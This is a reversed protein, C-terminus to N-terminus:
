DQEVKIFGRLRVGEVKRTGSKVRRFGRHELAQTFGKRGLTRSAKDGTYFENYSDWLDAVEATAKEEVICSDEIWETLPDFEERFEKATEKVSAPTGLHDYEQWDLCGEVAWALMAEGTERIDRVQNKLDIYDRSAFETNDFNIIHVREWTAEDDSRIFPLDNVALFLKFEATFNRTNQYLRRASITDSATIKKILASNLRQGHDAESAIVLRKGEMDAIDNSPSRERRGALLTSFETSWAYDGLLAKLAEIFTTKGTRTPGLLIFFAGEQQSGTLCYGAIRKLYEQTEGDGKTVKELFTRWARGGETDARHADKVYDVDVLKTMMDSPEHERLRGTRLDLVGNRANLLWPYKDFDEPVRVISTDREAIWVMSRLRVASESSNAHRGLSQRQGDDEIEAAEAYMNRVVQRALNDINGIRDKEWRSGNWRLWINHEKIYRLEEGYQDILREANGVDSLKYGNIGKVVDYDEPRVLDEVVLEALGSVGKDNKPDALYDDLGVKEQREEGTHEDVYIRPPIYVASVRVKRRELFAKLDYMARYVQKNEAADSDFAIIVQRDNLAIHHWDGLAATGGYQNTGRWNWVGMLSIVCLGASIGSDAKRIGETVWLPIRPDFLKERIWPNVDLGMFSGAPTEYKILRGKDNIRPNDPRFQYTTPHPGGDRSEGGYPNYSPILLGPTRRQTKSFGYKALEGPDVISKYGRVRAVHEDIGSADLLAQHHDLLFERPRAGTTPGSRTDVM